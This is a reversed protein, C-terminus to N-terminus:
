SMFVLSNCRVSHGTVCWYLISLFFFLQGAKPSRSTTDWLHVTGDDGATLLLHRSLRSYEMVRLVQGMVCYSTTTLESTETIGEWTTTLGYSGHNLYVWRSPTSSWHVINRSEFACFWLSLKWQKLVAFSCPYPLCTDFTDISVKLAIFYSTSTMNVDEDLIKRAWFVISWKGVRLWRQIYAMIWDSRITVICWCHFYSISQLTQQWRGISWM